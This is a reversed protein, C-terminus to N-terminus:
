NPSSCFPTLTDRSSTSKEGLKEQRVWVHSLDVFRMEEIRRQQEQEMEEKMREMREQQEQEQRKLEEQERRKREVALRRKEAREAIM